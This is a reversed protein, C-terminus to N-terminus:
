ISTKEYGAAVVTRHYNEDSFGEDEDCSAKTVTSLMMTLALTDKRVSDTTYQSMSLLSHPVSNDHRPMGEKNSGTAGSRKM